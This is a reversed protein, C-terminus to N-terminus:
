PTEQPVDLTQGPHILHPDDGIVARNQEFWRPWAEAIRGPTADEGLHAAAVSWLSDGSRVVVQGATAEPAGTPVPPATAPRAAAVPVVDARAPTPGEPAVRLAPDPEAPVHRADTREQAPEESGAHEAADASSSTVTWLLDQPDAHAATTVPLVGLGVGVGAAVARRLVSPTLRVAVAETRRAARGFARATTAVTLALCGVALVTAAVAAVGVALLTVVDEPRPEWRALELLAVRHLAVAVGACLCTAVAARRAAAGSRRGPTPLGARQTTGM